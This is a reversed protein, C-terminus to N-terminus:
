CQKKEHKWLSVSEENGDYGLGQDRGYNVGNYSSGNLTEVIADLHTSDVQRFSEARDVHYADEV